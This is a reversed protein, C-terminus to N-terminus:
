AGAGAFSQLKESGGVVVGNVSGVFSKSVGYFKSTRLFVM